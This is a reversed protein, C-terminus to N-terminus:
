RLMPFRWCTMDGDVVAGVCGQGLDIALLSGVAINFKCTECQVVTFRMGDHPPPTSMFLFAHNYRMTKM